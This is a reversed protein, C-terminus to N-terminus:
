KLMRRRGFLVFCQERISKQRRIYVQIDHTLAYTSKALLKKNLETVEAVSLVAMLHLCRSLIWRPPHGVAGGTVIRVRLEILSDSDECLTANINDVLLTVVRNALHNVVEM